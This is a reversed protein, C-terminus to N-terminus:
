QQKNEASYAKINEVATQEMNPTFNPSISMKIILAYIVILPVKKTFMEGELFQFLENLLSGNMLLTKMLFNLVCQGIEEKPKEPNKLLLPIFTSKLPVPKLDLLCYQSLTLMRLLPSAISIPQPTDMFLLLTLSYLKENLTLIVDTLDVNALTFRQIKEQNIDSKWFKSFDSNGDVNFHKVLPEQISARFSYGLQFYKYFHRSRDDNNPDSEFRKTISEFLVDIRDIEFNNRFLNSNLCRDLCFYSKAKIEVNTFGHVIAHNTEIISIGRIMIPLKGVTLTKLKLKYERTNLLEKLDLRHKTDFHSFDTKAFLIVPGSHKTTNKYKDWDNLSIFELQELKPMSPLILPPVYFEPEINYYIKLIKLNPLGKQIWLYPYDTKNNENGISLSLLKIDEFKIILGIIRNSIVSISDHLTESLFRFNSVQHYKVILVIQGNEKVSDILEGCDCRIFSIQENTGYQFSDYNTKFRKSVLKLDPKKGIFEFILKLIEIPILDIYNQHQYKQTWSKVVGWLFEM